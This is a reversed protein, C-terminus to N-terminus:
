AGDFERRTIRFHIKLNLKYRGAERYCDTREYDADKQWSYEVLRKRVDDFRDYCAQSFRDNSIVFGGAEQAMNLLEYDDDVGDDPITMIGLNFLHQFKCRSSSCQSYAYSVLRIYGHM